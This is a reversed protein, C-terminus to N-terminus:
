STPEAPTSSTRGSIHARRPTSSQANFRVRDGNSQESGELVYRVGLDRGIQKIDIPKGKYTFATSRAIVFSGRIRSLATTLEDTIVDALYDQGSDGSLNAFPLVVISLGPVLAPGQPAPAPRFATWLGAALLLTAAVGALALWIRRLNWRRLPGPALSPEMGGLAAVADADLAYFCSRALLRRKHRPEDKFGLVVRRSTVEEYVDMIAEERRGDTENLRM